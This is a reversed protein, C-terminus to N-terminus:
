SRGSARFLFGKGKILKYLGGANRPECGRGQIM